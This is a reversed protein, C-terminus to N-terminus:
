LSIAPPLMRKRFKRPAWVPHEDNVCDSGGDLGERCDSHTLTPNFPAPDAYECQTTVIACCAGKNHREKLSDLPVDHYVVTPPATTGVALHLTLVLRLTPSGLMAGSLEFPVDVSWAPACM